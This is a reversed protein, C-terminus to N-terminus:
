HSHLIYNKFNEDVYVFTDKIQNIGNINKEIEKPYDITKINLYTTKEELFICIVREILVVYTEQIFHIQCRFKKKTLQDDNLYGMTVNKGQVVLEGKIGPEDIKEMEILSGVNLEKLQNVLM